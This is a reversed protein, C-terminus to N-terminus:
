NHTEQEEILFIVKEICDLNEDIRMRKEDYRWLKRREESTFISEHLENLYTIMTEKDMFVGGNTCKIIDHM